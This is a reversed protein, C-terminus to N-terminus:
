FSCLNSHTFNTPNELTQLPEELPSLKIPLNSYLYHGYLWDKIYLYYEIFLAVSIRSDVGEFGWLVDTNHEIKM